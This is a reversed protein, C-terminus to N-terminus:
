KNRNLLAKRDSRSEYGPDVSIIRGTFGGEQDFPKNFEVDFPVGTKIDYITLRNYVNPIFHITKGNVKIYKISGFYDKSLPTIEFKPDKDKSEFLIERLERVQEDGCNIKIKFSKTLIIIKGIGVNYRGKTHTDMMLDTPTILLSGTKTKTLKSQSFTITSFVLLAILISILNKM